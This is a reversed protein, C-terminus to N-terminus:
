KWFFAPYEDLDGRIFRALLLSQAYPILGWSIKEHLYPHTIVERKKEQWSNLLKKRGNENLLMVGNEKEVFDEPKIIRNNILTVIFRDALISRLEEMLDLALSIRGSRDRHMFGVYPDLGAGELANACDHALITYVFSLLANVRGVPPRKQRCEMYFFEKNKLIMMNFVSFYKQAAIGEIGRLSDLNDSKRVETILYKIDDSVKSIEDVDVNLPHDRKLRELVSRSNYIKGAIFNRAIVCSSLLDDSLRYQEKRLLVNGNNGGSVRALFKGRPTYFCLGIGRAVCEGMFATSAGKYSFSLIQELNHLPIRVMTGDTKNIVANQNDLSLYSDESLIFLTNLMHRM